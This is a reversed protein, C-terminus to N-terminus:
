SIVFLGIIRDSNAAVAHRMRPALMDPGNSYSATIPDYVKVSKLVQGGATGGIFYAKGQFMTARGHSPHLLNSNKDFTTTNTNPNFMQVTGSLYGDIMVTPVACVLSLQVLLFLTHTQKTMKIECCIIM